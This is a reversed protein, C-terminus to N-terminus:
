QLLQQVAAELVTDRGAALDHADYDVALQPVTHQGELPQNTQADFCRNPDTLVTFAPPGSFMKSGSSAGFAGATPAGALVAQTRLKAGRAFYDSASYDIGDILVAVKGGYAFTGGPTLAYIAYQTSYLAPPDSNPIRAQCYSLETADAGPFGSLIDLGVLTMGGGNGRVDWVVAGADKVQDFATQIKAEFTMKYADIQAQTPNTPFTQQYDLFSPLRIVGVGDPRLTAEAVVAPRAFPDGCSAGHTFDGALGADPMTIMRVGGDASEVQLVDGGILHDVFNSATITDLFSSTPASSACTPRATLTTLVQAGQADGLATVLDGANLGLLNNGKAYTVIVGRAHPRGCVGRQSYEPVPVFTGCGTTLELAQHGEPVAIFAHYLAGFYALPTGDGRLIEKRGADAIDAWGLPYPYATQGKIYSLMSALEDAEAFQLATPTVCLDARCVGEFDCPVPASFAAGGDQATCTQILDGACKQAGPECPEPTGSDPTGADPPPTSADPQMEQPSCGFLLAALMLARRVPGSECTEPKARLDARPPADHVGM